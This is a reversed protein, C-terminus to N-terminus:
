SVTSKGTTLAPPFGICEYAKIIPHSPCKKRKMTRMRIDILLNTDTRYYSGPYEEILASSYPLTVLYLRENLDLENKQIGLRRLLTYFLTRKYPTDNPLGGFTEIEILGQWHDPTLLIHRIWETQVGYKERMAVMTICLSPSSWMVRAQTTPIIVRKHVFSLSHIM